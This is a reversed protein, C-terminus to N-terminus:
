TASGLPKVFEKWIGVFAARDKKSQFKINVYSYGFRNLNSPRSEEGGRGWTSRGSKISAVSSGTSEETGSRTLQPIDMSDTRKRSFLSPSKPAQDNTSATSTKRQKFLKETSWKLPEKSFTLTLKDTDKKYTADTIWEFAYHPEEVWHGKDELASTYFLLVLVDFTVLGGEELHTETRRWLRLNRARCEIPSQDSIISHIQRDYKLEAADAGNNTYLLTQFKDALESDKFLYTIKTCQKELKGFSSRPFDISVAGDQHTTTLPISPGTAPFHQMTWTRPKKDKAHRYMACLSIGTDERYRWFIDCETSEPKAQSLMKREVHVKRCLSTWELAGQGLAITALSAVSLRKHITPQPFAEPTTDATSEAIVPVQRTDTGQSISSRNTSVSPSRGLDHSATSGTPSSAWDISGFYGSSNIHPSVPLSETPSSTRKDPGITSASRSLGFQDFESFNGSFETDITYTRPPAPLMGRIERKVADSPAFHAKKEATTRKARNEELLIADDVQRRLHYLIGATEADGSPATAPTDGFSLPRSLGAEQAVRDDEWQLWRDFIKWERYLPHEEPAELALLPNRSPTGLANNTYSRGGLSMSRFPTVDLLRQTQKASDLHLRLQLFSICMNLAQYHGTIQKRLGDIEKEMGMYRVTYIMKKFGMKKDVLHEAYPELTQECRELTAKFEACPFPLPKGYAKMLDGLEILCVHFTAFERVLGTVQAESNENADKFALYVRTSVELLKIIDSPSFGFSM